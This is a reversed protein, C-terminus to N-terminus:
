LSHNTRKSFHCWRTMKECNMAFCFMLHRERCSKYKGDYSSRVQEGTHGHPWMIRMTKYLKLENFFMCSLYLKVSVGEKARGGLLCRNRVIDRLSQVIRHRQCNMESGATPISVHLHPFSLLPPHSFKRLSNATEGQLVRHDDSTSFSFSNNQM